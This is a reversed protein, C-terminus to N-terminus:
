MLPGLLRLLVNGVAIPFRRRRAVVPTQSEAIECAAPSQRDVTM